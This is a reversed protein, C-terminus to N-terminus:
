SELEDILKKIVDLGQQWFRPSSADFGFDALLEKYNKSGGARLLNIYKDKFNPYGASYLGYLSNVLCDGFAYSYVYFPAHIFHSIYMWYYSYSADIGIADGLSEKQVRLWLDGIQEASFEGQRRAQHLQKEFDCFAIQRVVTNLMDEIKGAIMFRRAKADNSEALLKRFVLQEGFVSATEAITLPTNALLAGQEAALVQHIGHGLEHALTMVDRTKGNYNLLLYPHASPVTPHAFAGSVKGARPPVDIWPKTFFQQGIAALEPSFDDYASLVIQQAEQWSYVRCDDNPLPANRDWYPLSVVGFMKAKIKYYRHALTAYNQKVVAILTEVVEDEIQNALNRAKIPQPLCRKQDEIEKDKILTNMIFAFIRKNQGFVKSIEIAATQRKQADKDSLLDIAQNSSLMQGDIDFRLAELTEDYLRVWASNSTISKEHLVREEADSLQYPKLARLAAFWAKYRSLEAGVLMSQLKQEDIQNIELNFFLLDTTLATIQEQVYQYFATIKEDQVAVAYCLYAYSALRGAIESIVEYDQVAQLLQMADSTTIKARYNNAFQAVLQSLKAIDNKVEASEPTPYLDSLQWNPLEIPDSIIKHSKM